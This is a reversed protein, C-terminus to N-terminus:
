SPHFVTNFSPHLLSPSMLCPIMKLWARKTILPSQVLTPLIYDPLSIGRNNRSRLLGWLLLDIDSLSMVFGVKEKLTEHIGRGKGKARSKSCKPGLATRLPIEAKNRSPLRKIPIIGLLCCSTMDYFWSLTCFIWGKRLSVSAYGKGQLM